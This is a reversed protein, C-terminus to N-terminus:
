SEMEQKVAQEMEREALIDDITKFGPITERMFNELRKERQKDVIEDRPKVIGAIENKHRVVEKYMTMVQQINDQTMLPIAMIPRADEVQDMAMYLKFKRRCDFYPTRLVKETDWGLKLCLYDIM